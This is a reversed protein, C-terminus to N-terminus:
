GGTKYMGKAAKITPSEDESSLVGRHAQPKFAVTKEIESAIEEDSKGGRLLPKLPIGVNYFLCLKLDGTSTLRLRNCRDCFKHSIAEIFGFRGPMGEVRYMAAPGGSLDTSEPELSGYMGTLARKVEEVRGKPEKEGAMPMWEIFRVDLPYLTALSAVSLWDDQDSDPTLVCNVKVKSFELSLATELGSVAADLVDKGTIEAFRKKDLTDISINVGDLGANKLATAQDPLLVGNTTLGVYDIGDITKIARVLSSLDKRVLPEGGTLRIRNVGLGAMIKVLRTIEEYTLIEEHAIFDIGDEPMCYRCRLNCRDTVSIRLYHINRGISDQM